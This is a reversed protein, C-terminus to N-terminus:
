RKPMLILFNYIYKCKSFSYFFIFSFLVSYLLIFSLLPHLLVILFISMTQELGCEAVMWGYRLRSMSAPTISDGRRPSNTNATGYRESYKCFYDM